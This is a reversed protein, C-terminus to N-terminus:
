ESQQDTMRMNETETMAIPERITTYPYILPSQRQCVTYVAPCLALPRPNIRFSGPIDLFVLLQFSSPQSMLSAKRDGSKAEHLGVTDMGNTM